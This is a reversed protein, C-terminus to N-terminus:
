SEEKGVESRNAASLGLARKADAALRADIKGLLPRIALGLAKKHEPELTKGLLGFMDLLVQERQCLPCDPRLETCVTNGGCTMAQKLREQALTLLEESSAVRDESTAAVGVSTTLRVKRGYVAIQGTAMSKCVRKGFRVGARLDVGHSVIAVHSEGCRGLVDRPDIKAALLKAIRGTLLDSVDTGFLRILEDLGDIGFVLACLSEESGVKHSLSAVAAVFKDVDLLSDDMPTRRSRAKEGPGDRAERPKERSQPADFVDPPLTQPSALVDELAEIMAEKSMSKTMLGAIGQRQWEDGGSDPNDDSVLLVMPTERLRRLASSRMRELLAQATLRPPHVSSIVVVIGNDLMLHQWASEGNDEEVIGFGSELRKALTTRVVRSGDVILIRRRSALTDATSDSFAEKGM